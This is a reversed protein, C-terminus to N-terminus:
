LPPNVLTGDDWSNNTWSNGPAPIGGIMYDTGVAVSACKGNAGRQVTNNTVDVNSADPGFPKFANYGLNLCYTAGPSELFLNGDILINEVPAFDGFLNLDGSCGGGMENNPTDCAITNRQVVMNSGGNSLFGGLHWDQDSPVYQGHFWSDSVVCDKVCLASMQGGHINVRELTYNGLSVGGRQSNGNNIETDRITFADNTWEPQDTDLYVFGHIKSNRILVNDARIDIQGTVEINEMVAGDEYIQIGRDRAPLRKGIPIGTNNSGPFGPYLASTDLTKVAPGGADLNPMFMADVWYNAHNFSDDPFEGPTESFTGNDGDMQVKLYQSTIGADSFYGSTFGYHGSPVSYSVVYTTDATVDVPEDFTAQQWGSATENEFVVHALPTGDSEWLRGEHVGTASAAKYFKVGTVKGDVRPQFKLGLEYSDSSNDAAYPSDADIWISTPELTIAPENSLDSGNGAADLAKVAYEYTNGPVVSQDVFSTTGASVVSGIEDGDRYVQYGTVGVNDSSTVWSLHTTYGDDASLVLNGPSTPATTDDQNTPDTDPPTDDDPTQSVSDDQKSTNLQTSKAVSQVSESGGGGNENSANKVFITVPPTEYVDGSKDFVKATITHEGDSLTTTDLKYSFPYAYTVSAFTQDVYYEARVVRSLDDVKLSITVDGRVAKDPTTVGLSVTLPKKTDDAPHHITEGRSPNGASNGGQSVLWAITVVGIVVVLVGPLLFKLRLVSILRNKM